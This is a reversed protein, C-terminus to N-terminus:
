CLFLEYHPYSSIEITKNQTELDKKTVVTTSTLHGEAEGGVSIKKGSKVATTVLSGSVLVMSRSRSM